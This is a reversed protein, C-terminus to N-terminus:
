KCEGKLLEVVHKYVSSHGDEGTQENQSGHIPCNFNLILDFLEQLQPKVMDLIWPSTLSDYSALEDATKAILVRADMANDDIEMLEKLLVDHLLNNILTSRPINHHKAMVDLLCLDERKVRINFKRENKQPWSFENLGLSLVKNAHFTASYDIGGGSTTSFTKTLKDSM